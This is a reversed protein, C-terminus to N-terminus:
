KCPAARPNDPALVSALTPSNPPPPGAVGVNRNVFLVQYAWSPLPAFDAGCSWNNFNVAVLHFHKKLKRIGELIDPTDSGHLEMPMQVIREFLADPASLITQWEGGEIDMKVVMFKGDDGNRAIHSAMTDYRKGDLTEARAGVCEANPKFTGGRCQLAPPEFCDYQHVPVKHARSVDCGWDDQGGIGYSYATRVGEFLNACMAYGGDNASGVRSLQCNSLTVPQLEALVAARNQRIAERKAIEAPNLPPPPPACCMSQWWIYAGAAVVVLLAAVLLRIPKM